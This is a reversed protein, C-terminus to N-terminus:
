GQRNNIWSKMQGNASESSTSELSCMMTEASERKAVTSVIVGM